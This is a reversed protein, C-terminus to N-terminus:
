APIKPRRPGRPRPRTTLWGALAVAALACSAPEPVEPDGGPETPVNFRTVNFGFDKKDILSTTGLQSVSALTNDLNISIRTAGNDPDVPGPPFMFGNAILIAHIDLTASGAWQTHFLPGGGGDTGLVYTGGSPSFTLAFPVSITNIGVFDVEHIDLVGTAFVASSTAMSGPAVNGALTTDGAENLSLRGIRSGSKASVGFVLNVNTTDSAAGASSSDFGIPNFDMANGTVIPAGLLPLPEDAGSDETVNIYTVHTGMHTGYNIQAASAPRALLALLLVVGGAVTFGRSVPSAFARLCSQSIASQSKIFRSM